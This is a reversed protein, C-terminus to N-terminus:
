KTDQVDKQNKSYGMKDIEAEAFLLEVNLVLGRFGHKERITDIIKGVDYGNSTEEVIGKEPVFMKIKYKYM